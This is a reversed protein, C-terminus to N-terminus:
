FSQETPSTSSASTSVGQWFRLLRQIQLITVRANSQNMEIEVAGWHAQLLIPVITRSSPAVWFEGFPNEDFDDQQVDWYVPPSFCAGEPEIEQIIRCIFYLEDTALWGHSDISFAARQEFSASAPLTM